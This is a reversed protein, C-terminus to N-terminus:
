GFDGPLWNVPTGQRSQKEAALRARRVSRDLAAADARSLYFEVLFETM